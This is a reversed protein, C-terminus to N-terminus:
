LTPLRDLRCAVARAQEIFETDGLAPGVFQQRDVRVRAHLGLGLHNLCHTQVLSGSSTENLLRTHDVTPSKATEQRWIESLNKPIITDLSPTLVASTLRKLEGRCGVLANCKVVAHGFIDADHVFISGHYGDTGAM